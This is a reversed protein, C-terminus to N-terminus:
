RVSHILCPVEDLQNIAVGMGIWPWCLRPGELSNVKPRKLPIPISIPGWTVQSFIGKNRGRSPFRAEWPRGSDPSTWKLGGHKTQPHCDGASQSALFRGCPRASLCRAKLTSKCPRDGVLGQRPGGAWRRQGGKALSNRGYRAVLFNCGWGLDGAVRLLGVPSEPSWGRAM